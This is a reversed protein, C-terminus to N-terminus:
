KLSMQQCKVLLASCQQVFSCVVSDCAHKDKWHKPKCMLIMFTTMIETFIPECKLIPPFVKEWNVEKHISDGKSALTRTYSPFPLSLGRSLGSSEQDGSRHGEPARLTDQHRLLQHSSFPCGAKPVVREGACVCVCVSISVEGTRGECVWVSRMVRECVRPSISKTLQALATSACASHCPKPPPSTFVDKWM